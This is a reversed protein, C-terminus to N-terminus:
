TKTGRPHEACVHIAFEKDRMREYNEMMEGFSRGAPPWSATFMWACESCHWASFYGDEIWIVERRPAVMNPRRALHAYNAAEPM